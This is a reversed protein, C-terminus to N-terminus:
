LSTVAHASLVHGLGHRKKKRKKKVVHVLIIFRCTKYVTTRSPLFMKSSLSVPLTDDSPNGKSTEETGGVPGRHTKIICIKTDTRLVRKLHTDHVDTAVKILKEGTVHSFRLM